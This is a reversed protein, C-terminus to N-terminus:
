EVDQATHVWDHCSGYLALWSREKVGVSRFSVSQLQRETDVYVIQLVKQEGNLRFALQPIKAQDRIQWLLWDEQRAAPSMKFTSVFSFENPLGDPFLASGLLFFFGRYPM